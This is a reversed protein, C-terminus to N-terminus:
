FFLLCKNFVKQKSYRYKIHTIKHIPYKISEDISKHIFKIRM